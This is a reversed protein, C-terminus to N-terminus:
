EENRDEKKIYKEPFIIYGLVLGYIIIAIMISGYHLIYDSFNMLFGSIGVRFINFIFDVFFYIVRGIYAFVVAKCIVKSRKKKKYDLFLMLFVFVFAIWIFSTMVTSIISIMYSSSLFENLIVFLFGDFIALATIFYVVPNARNGKGIIITYILVMTWSIMPGIYWNHIFNIRQGWNMMEYIDLYMDWDYNITKFLMINSFINYFAYLVLFACLSIFTLKGLKTKM